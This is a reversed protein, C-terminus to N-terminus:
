GADMQIQEGLACSLLDKLQLCLMIAHVAATICPSFLLDKLCHEDGTRSCTLPDDHFIIKNIPFSGFPLDLIIEMVVLDKLLSDYLVEILPTHPQTEM